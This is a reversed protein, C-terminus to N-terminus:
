KNATNKGAYQNSLPTIVSYLFHYYGLHEFYYDFYITIIILKTIVEPMNRLQLLNVYSINYPMKVM